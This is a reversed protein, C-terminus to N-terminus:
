GVLAQHRSRAGNLFLTQDNGALILRMGMEIYRRVIAPDGPGGFGPVKGHAACVDVVREMAAVVRPDDYAGPVGLSFTLDSAGIFLVDVGPTAAIAEAAAVAEPSEIMVVCLTEENLRAARADWPQPAYGCQPLIGPASREGLPPFRCHRALEAATEADDVHPVIIGMAGNSLVRNIMPAGPDPVRVLPTVGAEVGALAMQSMQDFSLPGHEFDLFMWDYGTDRLMAAIDPTRALRVSVGLCPREALRARLPATM